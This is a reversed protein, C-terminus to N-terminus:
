RLEDILGALAESGEEKIDNSILCLTLNKLNKFKKLSQTLVKVGEDGMKGYIFSLSLGKLNKAKLNL